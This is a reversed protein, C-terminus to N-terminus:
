PYKWATLRSELAALGLVIWAALVFPATLTKVGLYPFFEAIPVSLLIGLIPHVLSHRALFLAIAALAGNYGFIGISIDAATDGHYLAVLCGLLSGALAWLAHQWTCVVLALLFLLGTYVNAEFMVEAVGETIAEWFNLVDPPPPMMAAPVQLRAAAWLVLWTVVVFPGTYTPFPLRRRSLWTVISSLACGFVLLAHTWPTLQLFFYAAMGVLAANFGYLGAEIESRDFRLLVAALLGVIAGLLGGLAVLPSAIVIGILFLLGTAASNQFMIQGIGRLAIRLWLLIGLSPIGQVM